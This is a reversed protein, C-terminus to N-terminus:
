RYLERFAACDRLLTQKDGECEIRGDHLYYIRQAFDLSRLRHAIILTIIEASIDRVTALIAEESANDLASTAEDLILVQPERYLARAIAIRQRQGGSLNSGAENLRSYIGQDLSLVFDLIDARRLAAIVRAEDIESGYAVNAAVSDNFIYVRQSVIAVCARVSELTCERLDRGDFLVAGHQPDYFRLLLAAISSKGGGSGGVLAIIEGKRAHLSVERLVQKRGFSLCVHDLAITGVQRLVHTGRNQEVPLATIAQIREHAAVADQFQTFTVFVRRVPDVAMLLATLFSFFGGVSLEGDIVQKGGVLIVVAACVAAFLEMVPAMANATRVSKLNVRFVGLNAEAFRRAEFAESHYAKIAEINHFTEALHATMASAREQSRHSIAKLKRSIIRVPYYAAPLVVLTIFSLKPSQYIVVGILAVATLSERLLSALSTSVANQIRVIDATIRSILEGSPRRHFFTIDMCLMHAFLRDRVKRVIDQGVYNMMYAQVYTGVGKTLFILIVAAPLVYLLTTNKEIFVEDLLPKMMWATAATALAVMLMAALALVLKARHNRYEPLFARLLALM